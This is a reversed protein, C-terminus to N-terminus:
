RRFFVDGLGAPQDVGGVCKQTLCMGEISIDVHDAGFMEGLLHEWGMAGALLGHAGSGRHGSHNGSYSGPFDTIIEILKRRSQLLDIDIEEQVRDLWAGSQAKDHKLFQLKPRHTKGVQDSEPGLDDQGTFDNDLLSGDVKQLQGGQSLWLGEMEFIEGAHASLIPAEVRITHQEKPSLSEACITVLGSSNPLLIYEQDDVRAVLSIPTAPKRNAEALKFSLYQINPPDSPVATATTVVSITTSPEVANHLSLFVRSTNTATIDLYM